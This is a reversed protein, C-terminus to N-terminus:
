CQCFNGYRVILSYFNTKEHNYFKSQTISNQKNPNILIDKISKNNPPNDPHKILVQCHAKGPPGNYLKCENGRINNYGVGVPKVTKNNLKSLYSPISTDKVSKRNQIESQNKMYDQKM